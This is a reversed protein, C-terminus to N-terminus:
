SAPQGTRSEGTGCSTSRMPMAVFSFALTGALLATPRILFQIHSHLASVDQSDNPASLCLITVRDISVMMAYM